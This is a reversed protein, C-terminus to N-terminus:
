KTNSPIVKEFVVNETVCVVIIKKKKKKKIMKVMTHINIHRLSIVVNKMLSITNLPLM